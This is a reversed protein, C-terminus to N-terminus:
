PRGWTSEWADLDSEFTAQVDPPAFSAAMARRQLGALGGADVRHHLTVLALERELTTSFYGPDDTNVSVDMGLGIMEGIPHDAISPATVGLLV